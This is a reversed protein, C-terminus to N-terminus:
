LYPEVIRKMRVIRKSYELVNGHKEKVLIQCLVPCYKGSIVKVLTKM